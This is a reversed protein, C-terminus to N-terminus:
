FVARKLVSLSVVVLLLMVIQKSALIRLNVRMGHSRMFKPTAGIVSVLWAGFSSASVKMTDAHGTDKSVETYSWVPGETNTNESQNLGLSENLWSSLTVLLKALWAIEDNFIPRNLWGGKYKRDTQKRKGIVRPKFIDNRQHKNQGAESVVPINKLTSNGFLCGMQMKLSDLCAMNHLLNDGSMTQLELESRLVFLQLPWILLM